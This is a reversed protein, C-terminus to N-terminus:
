LPQFKAWEHTLNINLLIADGAITWQEVPEKTICM